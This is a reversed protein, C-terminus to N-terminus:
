HDAFAGDRSVIGLVTRTAIARRGALCTARGCTANIDAVVRRSGVVRRDAISRGRRRVRTRARRRVPLLRAGAGPRYPVPRRGPAPACARELRRARGRTRRRPRRDGYSRDPLTSADDALDVRRRGSRSSTEGPSAGSRRRVTSPMRSRSPAMASVHGSGIAFRWTTGSPTVSSAATNASGSAAANWIRSAPACRDRRDRRRGRRRCARAASRAPAGRRPTRAATTPRWWSLSASNSPRPMARVTGAAVPSRRRRPRNCPGGRRSSGAIAASRGRPVSTSLLVNATSPASFRAGITTSSIVDNPRAAPPERRRQRCQRGAGHLTEATLRLGAASASATSATPGRRGTRARQLDQEDWPGAGDRHRQRDRAQAQEGVGHRVAHREHRADADAHRQAPAGRGAEDDGEIRREVAPM